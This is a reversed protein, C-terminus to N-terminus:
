FPGPTGQLPEMLTPMSAPPTNTGPTALAPSPTRQASTPTPSALRAVHQLAESKWGDMLASEPLSLLNQWKLLALDLRDIAELAQAHYYDLQAQQSDNKVLDLTANFKLVANGAEGAALLCRGKGLNADFSSPRSRLVFDYDKGALGPDGQQLHAEARGLYAELRDDDYHIALDFEELADLYRGEALHIKGLWTLAEADRPSYNLFLDLPEHAAKYDGRLYLIQAWLRYVGLMTLDKQNADQIDALAGDTDGAELRARARYYVLEASEPLLPGAKDLWDLAEGYEERLICVHALHLYGEGLAPDLNVAKLLYTKIDSTKGPSADLLARAKGLYLPGFNKDAALGADYMKQAEKYNGQIRLTEGRLYYLDPANPEDAIVMALYEAARVWESKEYAKMAARYAEARNHPTAVYLSTPTYSASLLMSLDDPYAKGPSPTFGVVETATPPATVSWYMMTPLSKAPRLAQIASYIGYSALAMVLVVIGSIALAKRPMRAQKEEKKSEVPIQWDRKQRGIPIVALPDPAQEGQAVLAQLAAPNGPEVRLAEKLCFIRERRTEVAASLYIWYGAARPNLKILRTLLDRAHALEGQNIATRAEQFMAEEPTM